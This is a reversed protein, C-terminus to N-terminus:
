KGSTHFPQSNFKIIHQASQSQSKGCLETKDFYKGPNCGNIMCYNIVTDELGSRPEDWIKLWM